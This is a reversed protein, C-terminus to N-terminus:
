KVIEAYNCMYVVTLFFQSLFYSCPANTLAATLWHWKQASGGFGRSSGLLGLLSCWNDHFLCHSQFSIFTWCSDLESSCTTVFSQELMRQQSWAFFWIGPVEQTEEAERCSSLSNANVKVLICQKSIDRLSWQKTGVNTTETWALSTQLMFAGIFVKGEM